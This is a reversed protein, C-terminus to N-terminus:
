PADVTQSWSLHQCLGVERQMRFDPLMRVSHTFMGSHMWSQGLACLCRDPLMRMSHTFMGSHMWFQGPACLCGLRHDGWMMVPKSSTGPKLSAELAAPHMTTVHVM